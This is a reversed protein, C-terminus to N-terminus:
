ICNNLLNNMSSTNKVSHPCNLFKKKETFVKNLLRSSNIKLNQKLLIYCDTKESSM